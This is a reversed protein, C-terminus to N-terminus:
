QRNPDPHVAFFVSYARGEADDPEDAIEDFLEQLRDRFREYREPGLRLGLRSMDVEQAPVASVEELFTELMVQGHGPATIAWSKGTAQYPIERSGRSGRRAPLAELFGTDTLTRVHHLVTAPDRGLVEAIEKNTHPDRLCVRLIRLRLSSALAKAEVDTAPRRHAQRSRSSSRGSDM